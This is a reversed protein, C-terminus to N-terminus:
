TLQIGKSFIIRNNSQRLSYKRSHKLINQVSNWHKATRCWCLPIWLQDNKSTAFYAPSQTELVTTTYIMKTILNKFSLLLCQVISILSFFLKIIENVTMIWTEKFLPEVPTTNTKSNSLKFQKANYTQLIM